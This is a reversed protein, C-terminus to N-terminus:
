DKVLNQFREESSAFAVKQAPTRWTGVPCSRQFVALFAWTQKRTSEYQKSIMVFEYAAWGM